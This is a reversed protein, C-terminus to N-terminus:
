WIEPLDQANDATGASMLKKTWTSFMRAALCIKKRIIFNISEIIVPQYWNYVEDKIFKLARPNLKSVSCDLIDANENMLFHVVRNEDSM